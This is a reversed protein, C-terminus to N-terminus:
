CALEPVLGAMFGLWYYCQPQVLFASFAWACGDVFILLNGKAEVENARCAARLLDIAAPHLECDHPITKELKDLCFIRLSPILCMVISGSSFADNM